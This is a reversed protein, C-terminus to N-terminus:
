RVAITARRRPYDVTDNSSRKRPNLNEGDVDMSEEIANEGDASSCSMGRQRISKSFISDTGSNYHEDPTMASHTPTKLSAVSGNVSRSPISISFKRRAAISKASTTDKPSTTSERPASTAAMAARRRQQSVHAELLDKRLPLRPM